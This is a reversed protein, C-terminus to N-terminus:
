ASRAGRLGTLLPPRAYFSGDTRAARACAPSLPIPAMVRTRGAAWLRRAAPRRTRHGLAPRRLGARRVVKAPPDAPPRFRVSAHHGTPEFHIATAGCRLAYERIVTSLRAAMENPKMNGKQAAFREFSKALTLKEKKQASDKTKYGFFSM